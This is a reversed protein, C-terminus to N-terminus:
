KSKLCAQQINKRQAEVEQRNRKMEEESISYKKGNFTFKVSTTFDGIHEDCGLKDDSYRFTAQLDRWATGDVVSNSAALEMAYSYQAENLLKVYRGKGCNSYLQYMCEAGSGCGGNNLLLDNLGDGNIDGAWVLFPSVMMDQDSLQAALQASNANTIFTGVVKGLDNKEPHFRLYRYPGKKCIPLESVKKTKYEDFLQIDDIGTESTKLCKEINMALAKEARSPVKTRSQKPLSHDCDVYGHPLCFLTKCENKQNTKYLYLAFDSALWQVDTSKPFEYQCANWRSQMEQIASSKPDKKFKSEIERRFKRLPETNCQASAAQASFGFLFFSGAAAFVWRALTSKVLQFHFPNINVRGLKLALNEANLLWIIKYSGSGDLCFM